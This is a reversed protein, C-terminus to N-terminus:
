GLDGQAKDFIQQEELSFPVMRAPPAAIPTRQSRDNRRWTGSQDQAHWAGSQDRLMRDPAASGAAVSAVIFAAALTTTSFISMMM